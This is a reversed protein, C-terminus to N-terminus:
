DYYRRRRHRRDGVVHFRDARAERRQLTRKHEEVPRSAGLHGVLDDVGDRGVEPLRVRVRAARVLRAPARFREDRLSPERPRVEQAARGVLRDEARVHRCERKCQRPRGAPLPALSVLDDDGPEVVVRVHRRPEFQRVVATELHAEDVDAVVRREVEVVELPLQGIARADDRERDGRIRDARQRVDPLDDLERVAGARQRPRVGDVVPRVPRDVDRLPADVHEDARRVLEEAGVEAEPVAAGVEELAPTRVLDSGRRALREPRAELRPGERVLQQGSEDGGDVVDVRDAPVRNLAVLALEACRKRAPSGSPTM